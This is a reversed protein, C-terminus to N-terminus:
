IVSLATQIQFTLMGHATRVHREAEAATSSRAFIFGLYSAGEPLPVLNQGPVATIDVSEIGPAQSAEEVGSVGQYIGAQPIPIMMVAAGGPALTEHDIAKGLAHRIIVDELGLGSNFRLVRACLGGIPRAAVELM